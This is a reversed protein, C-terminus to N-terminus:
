NQVYAVILNIMKTEVQIDFTSQSM